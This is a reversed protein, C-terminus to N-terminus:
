EYGVAVRTLVPTAAGNRTRLIARYQIWNEDRELVSLSSRSDRFESNEGRHGRWKATSLGESTAAKRVQFAVTSGFNTEAEWSLRTFRTGAPKQFPASVYAEDPGRHYANGLDVTLAEHPGTTALETVDSDTLTGKRSWHARSFARHDGLKVHNAFCIDPWGDHNFDAVTVAAASDERLRTIRNMSYVRDKAGWLIFSDSTRQNGQHYIAGAIDLYGDKNLDAVSIDICLIFETRRYASYGKESGWWIYGPVM